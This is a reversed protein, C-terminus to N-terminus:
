VLTFTDAKGVQLSKCSLKELRFGKLKPHMKRVERAICELKRDVKTDTESALIIVVSIRVKKAGKNPGCAPLATAACLLLLWALGWRAGRHARTIMAEGRVPPEPSRM